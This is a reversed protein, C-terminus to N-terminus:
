LSFWWLVGYYRWVSGGGMDEYHGWISGYIWMIAGCLSISGWLTGGTQGWIRLMSLAGQFLLPSIYFGVVAEAACFSAATRMWLVCKLGRQPVLIIRVFLNLSVSLFIPLLSYQLHVSVHVLQERYTHELPGADSSVLAAQEVDTYIVKGLISFPMTIM